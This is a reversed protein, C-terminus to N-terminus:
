VLTRVSTQVETVDADAGNLWKPKQKIRSLFQILFTKCVSTHWNFAKPSKLKSLCEFYRFFASIVSNVRSSRNNNRRTANGTAAKLSSWDLNQELVHDNIMQISVSTIVYVVQMSHKYESAEEQQWPIRSKVKIEQGKKTM